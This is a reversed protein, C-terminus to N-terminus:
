VEVAVTAMADQAAREAADLKHSWTGSLQGDFIRRFQRLFDLQLAPDVHPGGLFALDTLVMHRIAVMPLPSDLPRFDQNHLGGVDHGPWFEGLMLGLEVFEPKLVAHVREVMDVLEPDPLGYPVVIATLHMWLQGEAKARQQLWARSERLLAIMAEDGERADFAFFEALDKNLAKAMFPCVDGARGLEPHPHTLFEDM